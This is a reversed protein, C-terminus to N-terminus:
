LMMVFICETGSLVNNVAKLPLQSSAWLFPHELLLGCTLTYVSGGSNVSTLHASDFPLAVISVGKRRSADQSRLELQKLPEGSAEGLTRELGSVAIPAAGGGDTDRAKGGARRSDARPSERLAAASVGSGGGARPKGGASHSVARPSARPVNGASPTM